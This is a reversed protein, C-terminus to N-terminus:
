QPGKTIIPRGARLLRLGKDGAEIEWRLQDRMFDITRHITKRCVEESAALQRATVWKGTELIDALRHIRGLVTLCSRFQSAHSARASCTSAAFSAKSREDFPHTQTPTM